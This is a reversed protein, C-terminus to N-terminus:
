DLASINVGRDRFWQYIKIYNNEIAIKICRPGTTTMDINAHKHITNLMDINNKKTAAIALTDADIISSYRQILWKVVGRYKPKGSCLKKIHGSIDSHIMASIINDIDEIDKVDEIDEITKECCCVGYFIDNLTDNDSNDIIYQMVKKQKPYVQVFVDAFYRRYKAPEPIIINIIDWNEHKFIKILHSTGMFKSSIPYRNAFYRVMNLQNCMAAHYIYNQGSNSGIKEIIYKCIDLRGYLCATKIYSDIHNICENKGWLKVCESFTDYHGYTILVIMPQHDVDDGNKLTERIYVNLIMDRLDHVCLLIHQIDKSGKMCLAIIDRNPSVNHFSKCVFDLSKMYHYDGLFEYLVHACVIDLDSLKVMKKQTKGATM